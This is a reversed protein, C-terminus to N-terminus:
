LSEMKLTVPSSKWFIAYVFLGAFSLLILLALIECWIGGLYFAIGGLVFTSLMILGLLIKLLSGQLFYMSFVLMLASLGGWKVWTYFHLQKLLLGANHYTDLTLIEAIHLNEYVDSAVILLILPIGLWLAKVRSDLYMLICCLTAFLGYVGMYIYDIQNGLSLSQKVSDATAIQFFNELGQTDSMFELAVIPSMFGEPLPGVVMPNIFFLAIGIGILIIGTFVAAFKIVKGM